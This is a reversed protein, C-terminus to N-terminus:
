ACCQRLPNFQVHRGCRKGVRGTQKSDCLSRLYAPAIDKGFYRAVIRVCTAGCDSHELQQYSKIRNVAPITQNETWKSRAKTWKVKPASKM